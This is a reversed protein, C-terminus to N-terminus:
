IICNGEYLITSKDNCTLCNASIENKEQYCTGCDPHCEKYGISNYLYSNKLEKYCHKKKQSTENLLSYFGDYM